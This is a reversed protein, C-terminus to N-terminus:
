DGDDPVEVSPGSPVTLGRARMLEALALRIVAASTLNFHERLMALMAATRPDIRINLQQSPVAVEQM